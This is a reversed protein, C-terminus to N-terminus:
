KLILPSLAALNNGYLRTGADLHCNQCNMGNTIKAITGKPGLYKSTHVILDRGYRIMEGAKGTPITQEKPAKWTNSTIQNLTSTGVGSGDDAMITSKGSKLLEPRKRTMLAVTAITVCAASFM